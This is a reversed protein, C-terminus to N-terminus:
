KHMSETPILLPTRKRKLDTSSSQNNTKKLLEQTDSKDKTSSPRHHKSNSSHDMKMGSIPRNPKKKEDKSLLNRSASNKIFGTHEMKTHGKPSNILLQTLPSQRRLEEEALRGIKRLNQSSNKNMADTKRHM